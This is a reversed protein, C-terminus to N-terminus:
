LLILHLRRCHPVLGAYILYISLDEMRPRQLRFPLPIDCFLFYLLLAIAFVIVAHFIM